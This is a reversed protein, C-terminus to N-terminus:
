VVPVTGKEPGKSQNEQAKQLKLAEEKMKRNLEMASAEDNRKLIEQQHPTLEKVKGLCKKAFNQVKKAYEIRDKEYDNKGVLDKLDKVGREKMKKALYASTAQEMELLHGRTHVYQETTVLEDEKYKDSRYVANNYADFAKVSRVMAEFEPSTRYKSSTLKDVSELRKNKLGNNYLNVNTVLQASSGLKWKIASKMLEMETSDVDKLNPSRGPSANKIGAEIKLRNEYAISMTRWVENITSTPENEGPRRMYSINLRHFEKDDLVMLHDKSPKKHTKYYEEGERIADRMINLREEAADLEEDSLGRGRLAFKLMAPDTNMVKDKMSATIIRMNKPATMLDNLDKDKPTLRTFSSDNDIGQVGVLKGDKDFQYLVNGGHRDINGCIYDLVQLDCLQRLGEKGAGEFPKEAVKVSKDSLKNALDVGSGMDMFTGELINGKSDRFRMNRSRAVLNSVGLLDAVASMASNRSDIREGEKMNLMATNLIAQPKSALISMHRSLSELGNSGVKASLQRSTLGFVKQLHAKTYKLDGRYTHILFHGMLAEDSMKAADKNTKSLGERYKKMFEDFFAPDNSQGKAIALATNFDEVISFNSAKTFFGKVKKGKATSLTIPIRDSQAGSMKSFEKDGLDVTVTRADEQLEQLSKKEKGSPDYQQLLNMDRSMTGQLKRVLDATKRISEAKAKGAKDDGASLEAEKANKLFTEGALAATKIALSLEEKSAADIQKATGWKDLQSFQDLKRDLEEMAKAYAEYGPIDKEVNARLEQQLKRRETYEPLDYYRPM